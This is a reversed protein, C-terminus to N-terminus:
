PAVTRATTTRAEYVTVDPTTARVRAETAPAPAAYVRPITASAEVVVKGTRLHYLPVDLAPIADRADHGWIRNIWQEGVIPRLVDVGSLRVAAHHHALFDALGDGRPAPIEHAAILAAAVAAAEPAVGNLPREWVPTHGPRIRLLDMGLYGVPRGDYLATTVLAFLESGDRQLHFAQVVPKPEHPGYTSLVPDGRREARLLARAEGIQLPVVGGRAALRFGTLTVAFPNGEPKVESQAVHDAWREANTAAAAEISRAKLESKKLPYSRLLVSLTGKSIGTKALIDDIGLREEVRLRIAKDKLSQPVLKPM